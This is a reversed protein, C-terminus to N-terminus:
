TTFLVVLLVIVLVAATVALAILLPEWERPDEDELEEDLIDPQIAPQVVESERQPPPNDLDRMCRVCLDGDQPNLEKCYWCEKPALSTLGSVGAFRRDWGHGATIATKDQVVAEETAYFMPYDCVPCFSAVDRALEPFDTRTSCRPCQMEPM